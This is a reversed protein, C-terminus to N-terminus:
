ANTSDGGFCAVNILLRYCESNKELFIVIAAANEVHSERLFVRMKINRPM